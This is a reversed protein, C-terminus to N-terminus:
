LKSPDTLGRDVFSDGLRIKFDIDHLVIKGEQAKQKAKKLRAPTSLAPVAELIRDRYYPHEWIKSKINGCLLVDKAKYRRDVRGNKFEILSIDCLHICDRM